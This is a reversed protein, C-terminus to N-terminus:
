WLLVDLSPQHEIDQSAESILATEYLSQTNYILIILILTQTLLLIDQCVPLLCRKAMKDLQMFAKCDSDSCAAICNAIKADLMSDPLVLLLIFNM